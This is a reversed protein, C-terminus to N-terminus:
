YKVMRRYLAKRAHALLREVAKETSKLVAAIERISLAADYRLVIASRQRLPLGDIAQRLIANRERIAMEDTALTADDQTLLSPEELLIPRKKRVHDICTTTVIRFLYTKFLATAQYRRAAELLRMFAIQTIDQADATNGIFRIALRWVVAQYRQVIQEFAHMDGHSAATMLEEDTRQM